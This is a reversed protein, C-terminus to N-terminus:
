HCRFRLDRSKEGSGSNTTPAGETCKPPFGSPPTKLLRNSGLAIHGQQCGRGRTKGQSGWKPRVAIRRLSTPLHGYNNEWTCVHSRKRGRRRVQRKRPEDSQCAQGDTYSERCRRRMRDPTCGAANTSHPDSIVRGCWARRPLVVMDLPEDSRYTAFREVVKDHEAFGEQAANQLSVSRVVILNSCM